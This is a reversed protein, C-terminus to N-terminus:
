DSEKAAGSPVPQKVQPWWSPLDLQQDAMVVAVPLRDPLGFFSSAFASKGCDPPGWLVGKFRTLGQTELIWQWLEVNGAFDGEPIEILGKDGGRDITADPPTKFVVTSQVGMFVQPRVALYRKGKTYIIQFISNFRGAPFTVCSKPGGADPGSVGSEDHQTAHALIFVNADLSLLRDRIDYKCANQAMGNDRWNIGPLTGKRGGSLEVDYHRSKEDKNVKLMGMERTIQNATNSITDWIISKIRGEAVAAELWDLIMLTQGTPRRKAVEPDNGTKFESRPNIVHVGDYPQTVRLLDSM